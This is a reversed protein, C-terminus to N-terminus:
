KNRLRVKEDLLETKGLGNFIVILLGDHANYIGRVGLFSSAFGNRKCSLKRRGGAKEGIAPRSAFMWRKLRKREDSADVGHM